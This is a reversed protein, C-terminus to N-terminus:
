IYIMIDHFMFSHFLNLTVPCLFALYFNTSNQVITELTEDNTPLETDLDWRDTKELEETGIHGDPNIDDNAKPQEVVM